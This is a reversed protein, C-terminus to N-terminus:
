APGTPCGCREEARDGYRQDDPVLGGCRSCLGVCVTVTKHEGGEIEDGCWECFDGMPAELLEDVRRKWMGLVM